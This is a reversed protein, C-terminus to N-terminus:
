SDRYYAQWESHVERGFSVDVISFRNLQYYIQLIQYGVIMIITIMIITHKINKEIFMVKKKM